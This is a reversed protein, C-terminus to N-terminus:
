GNESSAIAAPVLSLKEALTDIGVALKKTDAQTLDTYPVFGDDTRYPELLGKQEYGRLMQPNTGTVEAAVSISFLARGAGLDGRREAV